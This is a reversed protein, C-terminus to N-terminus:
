ASLFGKWITSQLWKLTKKGHPLYASFLELHPKVFHMFTFWWSIFLLPQWNILCTCHGGMSNLGVKTQIAQKIKLCVSPGNVFYWFSSTEMKCGHWWFHTFSPSSHWLNKSLWILCAVARQWCALYCSPRGVLIDIVDKEYSFVPFM